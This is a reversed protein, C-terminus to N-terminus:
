HEYIKFVKLYWAGAGTSFLPLYNTYKICINREQYMNTPIKIVFKLFMNCANTNVKLHLEIQYCHSKWKINMYKICINTEQYMNTPFKIVFKLFMNYTNKNVKLHLEIQYCHSKWKINTYKIWINREHYM